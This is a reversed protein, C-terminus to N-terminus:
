FVNTLDRSSTMITKKRPPSLTPRPLSIQLSPVSVPQYRVVTGKLVVTPSKGDPGGGTPLVTDRLAERSNTAVPPNLRLAEKVAWNLYTMGRLQDWSPDAVGLDRIERRIASVADPHRALEAFLYTLVSTTTDRGALFISILQDRVVEDPEGTRLLENLFVYKDHKRDQDDDRDGGKEDQQQQQKAKEVYKAAYNRIFDTDADLERDPILQTIWGLRIRYALKFISRDFCQGYKVSERAAAPGLLINTSQGFMFDSITDMTLMAFLDQLDFPSGDAPVRAIMRAVHRDLCAMDSIQDRVFAPRITARAHQWEPGNTTFISHIGLVPQFSRVRIAPVVWDEFRTALVAKVVEPEDTSVTIGRGPFMKHAFSHGRGIELLDRARSRLLAHSRMQRASAAFFRLGFMDGPYAPLPACGDGSRAANAQYYRYWDRLETQTFLCVLAALAGLVRQRATVPEGPRLYLFDLAVLAALAVTALNGLVYRRTARKGAADM